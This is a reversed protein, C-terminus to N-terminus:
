VFVSEMLAIADRASKNVRPRDASPVLSSAASCVGGSVASSAAAACCALASRPTEPTAKQTLRGTEQKRDATTTLSQTSSAVAPVHRELQVRRARCDHLPAADIAGDRLQLYRRRAALAVHADHAALRLLVSTHTPDRDTTNRFQPSSTLPM